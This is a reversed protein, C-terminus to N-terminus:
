PDPNDTSYESPLVLPKMTENKSDSTSPWITMACCCNRRKKKSQFRVRRKLTAALHNPFLEIVKETSIKPKGGTRADEEPSFAMAEPYPGHPLLKDM